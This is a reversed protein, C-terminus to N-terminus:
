SEKDVGVTPEDMLIYKPKGIMASLIKLKRKNGGSLHKIRDDLCNEMEFLRALSKIIPGQLSFKVGKL